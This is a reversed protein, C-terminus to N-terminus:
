KPNPTPVDTTKPTVFVQRANAPMAIGNSDFADKIRRNLDFRVALFQDNPVWIEVLLTVAADTLRAVAVVPPPEQLIRADAAIIEHVADMADGVNATYAVGVEISIRRTAHGSFNKIIGSWIASNPVIVKINDATSIETTFLSIETVVGAVGATEVTDGVRFPRFLVLMLGAAVHGLAGQLALGIALGVAGLVAVFSTTEVGFSSLMAVVTFVLIAYRAISAVFTFITIDIKTARRGARVIADQVMGSVMWGVILIIVAGIVKLGYTTIVAMGTDLASTLPKELLAPNEAIKELSPLSDM